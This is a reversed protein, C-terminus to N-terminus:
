LESKKCNTKIEAHYEINNDLCYRRLSQGYECSIRNHETLVAKAEFEYQNGYGYQFPLKFVENGDIIVDASFYSNGYNRDLWQKAKITISKM